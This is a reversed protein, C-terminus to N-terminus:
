EGEQWLTELVKIWEDNLYKRATDYDGVNLCFRFNKKTLVENDLLYVTEIKVQVRKDPLIELYVEKKTDM